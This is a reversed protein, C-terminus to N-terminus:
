QLAELWEKSRFLEERQGFNERYVEIVATGAFHQKQLQRFLACYDMSGQGPLLCTNQASFDNLHLHRLGGGMARCM